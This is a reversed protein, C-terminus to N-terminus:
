ANAVPLQASGDAYRDHASLRNPWAHESFSELWRVFEILARPNVFSFYVFLFVLALVPLILFSFGRM